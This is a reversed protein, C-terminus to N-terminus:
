VVSKRDGAVVLYVWWSTASGPPLAGVAYKALLSSLNALLLVPQATAAFSKQGWRTAVAYITLAPAGVGATANMFGGAAGAIAAVGRGQIDIRGQTVGILGLSVLVLSGILVELWAADMRLVVVAGGVSGLGVLPALRSVTRWDVDRRTAVFVLLTTVVAGANSLTVGVAPGLVLTLLPAVVLGMGLGAIRQLGAGFCFAAVIVAVLM